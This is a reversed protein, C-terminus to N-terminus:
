YTIPFPVVDRINEMGTCVRVLRDFGLGAGATPTSGNKRLDIYWQLSTPDMKRDSVVKMLREYDHERVSSGILEGLGPVLLDCGQVTRGDANARMYFSKLCAPYNYVFVPKGFVTEALYNECESGLDEGWKPITFVGNMQDRRETLIRLAEDYSIREYSFSVLSKLRTILGKSSFKNLEELDDGNNELVYNIAYQTYEESFDMLDTLSAWALEWEVHEFEALHRSTRSKEARFSKNSTWVKGLGACLAELELQSSVTLFTPKGFFERSYDITKTIKDLIPISETTKDLLTTATFVEGGGECDSSTLINPNLHHFGKSEFFRHTAHSLAARIRFVANMTRTKVRVEKHGRLFELSMKKANLPYHIPDAVTSSYEISLIKLEVEAKVPHASVLGRVSLASGVSLPKLVEHILPDESILQLTKSCSGDYLEVFVMSSQFRINRIWGNVLITQEVMTTDIARVELHKQKYTVLSM